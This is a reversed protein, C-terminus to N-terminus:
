ASRRTKRKHAASWTTAAEGLGALGEALREGARTLRHGGGSDAEVLGNDRLDSLRASLVTPSMGDCRVQLARFGVPGERLEWVVRALWRRGLLSLLGTLAAQTAGKRVPRPTPPM